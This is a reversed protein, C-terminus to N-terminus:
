PLTRDLPNSDSVDPTGDNDDDTDTIDPDGDLDTDLEINSIDNSEITLTFSGYGGFNNQVVVVYDDPALQAGAVM